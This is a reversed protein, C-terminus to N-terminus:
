GLTRDLEFRDRTSSACAAALARRCFASMSLLEQKARAEVADAVAVPLRIAVTRCTAEDSM